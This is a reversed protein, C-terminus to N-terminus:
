WIVLDLSKGVIINHYNAVCLAENPPPPSEGGGGGGLIAMM